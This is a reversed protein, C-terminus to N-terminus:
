LFHNGFSVLIFGAANLQDNVVDVLSVKTKAGLSTIPAVLM